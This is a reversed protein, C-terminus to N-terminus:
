LLHCSRDHCTRAVDTRGMPRSGDVLGSWVVVHLDEGKSGPAVSGLSRPDNPAAWGSNHARSEVSKRNLNGFVM